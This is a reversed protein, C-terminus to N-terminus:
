SNPENCVKMIDSVDIMEGWMFPDSGDKPTVIMEDLEEDTAHAHFHALGVCVDMTLSPPMSRNLLAKKEEADEQNDYEGVFLLVRQGEEQHQSFLVHAIYEGDGRKNM